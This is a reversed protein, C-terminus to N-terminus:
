KIAEMGLIYLDELKQNGRQLFNAIDQETTESTAFKTDLEAAKTSDEFDQKTEKIYQALAKMLHDKFALITCTKQKFFNAVNTQILELHPEIQVCGPNKVNKEALKKYEEHNEKFYTLFTVGNQLHGKFSISSPFQSNM